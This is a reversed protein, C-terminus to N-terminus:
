LRGRHAARATGATVGREGATLEGGEDDAMLYFESAGSSPRTTPRTSRERGPGPPQRRTGNAGSSPRTTPRTSRERGPGPPQRRTGYFAM